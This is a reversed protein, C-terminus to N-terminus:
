TSSVRNLVLVHAKLTLLLTASLPVQASLLQARSYLAAGAYDLYIAQFSQAQVVNLESPRACFWLYVYTFIYVCVLLLFNISWDAAENTATPTLEFMTMGGDTDADVDCDGVDRDVDGEAYGYRDKDGDCFAVADDGAEGGDICYNTSVTQRTAMGMGSGGAERSGSRHRM